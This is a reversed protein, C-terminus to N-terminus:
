WWAIASDPVSVRVPVTLDGALDHQGRCQLDDVAVPGFTQRHAAEGAGQVPVRHDKVPVRRVLRRQEVADDLDHEGLELDIRGVRVPGGLQTGHGAVVALQCQRVRVHHRQQHGPRQGGRQRQAGGAGQAGEFVDEGQESAGPEAAGVGQVDVPGQEPEQVAMDEVFQLFEDVVRVLGVVQQPQAQVPQRDAFEGQEAAEGGDQRGIVAGGFEFAAEIDEQGPQGDGQGRWGARAWGARRRV